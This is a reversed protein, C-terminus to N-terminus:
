YSLPFAQLYTTVPVLMLLIMMVYAMIRLKMSYSQPHAHAHMCAHTNHTMLYIICSKNHYIALIIECVRFYALAGCNTQCVQGSNQIPAPFLTQDLSCNQIPALSNLITCIITKNAKSNTVSTVAKYCTTSLM